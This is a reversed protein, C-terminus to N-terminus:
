PEHVTRPAPVPAHYVTGPLGGPQLSGCGEVSSKFGGTQPQDAPVNDEPEAVLLQLESGSVEVVLTLLAIHYCSGVTIRM